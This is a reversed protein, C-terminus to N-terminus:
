ATNPAGDLLYENQNARLGNISASATSIQDVPLQNVGLSARVGPVLAALAYPNRGLLPLTSVQRTGVVQGMTTNETELLPGSATVEVVESTNGLELVFDLRSVEGVALEIGQRNIAKFGDKQVVVEYRGPQLLPVTYYGEQNSSVRRRVGTESAVVSVNADPVVAGSPDTIRGTMQASQSWVPGTLVLVSLTCFLLRRLM